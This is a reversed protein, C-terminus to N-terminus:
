KQFALLVMCKRLSAEYDSVEVGYVSRIKTTDLLSYQPRKAPTPYESSSIGSIECDFGGIEQIALAFEYWSIAGENSFNYIGAQWNGHTIIAMIAQALDAAYTPSGIQDNVVHLSDREQMLRSMTKVFNNGFSSYVWSTRIVIANPNQELSAKEGALKTVGYVNIPNTQAMETLSIAATGDFVYDTSIHLLKCGNAQSWKAIVAVAQHNLVAALEPESEARDVATYAACNIIFQPNITTLKTELAELDCLDLENRDTFFWEFQTFNKSLVALESGLQGTSGTVVIKKM